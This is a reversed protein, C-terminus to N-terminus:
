PEREESERSAELAKTVAAEMVGPLEDEMRDMRESLGDEMRDMRESLGDEMRDMRESLRDEMRNMHDTLENRLDSTRKEAASNVTWLGGATFVALAAIGGILWRAGPMDTRDMRMTSDTGLMRKRDAIARMARPAPDVSPNAETDRTLAATAPELGEKIGAQNDPESVLPLGQAAVRDPEPEAESGGAGQTEREM